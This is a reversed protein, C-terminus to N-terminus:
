KGDPNKTKNQIKMGQFAAEIDDDEEEEEEEAKLLCRQEDHIRVLWYAPYFVQTTMECPVAKGNAYTKTITRLCMKIKNKDKAKKISKGDTVPACTMGDPFVLLVRQVQCNVDAKIHNAHVAHADKTRACYKAEAFFLDEHDHLLFFPVAPKQIMLATCGLVLSAKYSSFDRCDVMHPLIVKIEDILETGSSDRIEIIRHVFFEGNMEPSDLDLHVVDDVPMLVFVARCYFLMINPVSSLEVVLISEHLCLVICWMGYAEAEKFSAFPKSPDKQKSFSSTSSMSPSGYLPPSGLLGQHNDKKSVALATVASGKQLKKPTSAWSPMTSDFDTKNLLDSPAEVLALSEESSRNLQNKRALKLLRNYKAIDKRKLDKYRYAKNQVCKRYSPSRKAGYEPRLKCIRLFSVGPYDELDILIREKIAASLSVSTEGQNRTYCQNNSCHEDAAEMSFACTKSLVASVLLSHFFHSIFIAGVSNM